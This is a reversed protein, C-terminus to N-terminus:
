FLLSLFGVEFREEWPIVTWQQLSWQFGVENLKDIRKKSLQSSQKNIFKKYEERQKGVWKSLKSHGATTPVNPHGNAKIFELLKNYQKNWAEDSRRKRNHNWIFGLSDLADVREKSMENLNFRQNIVWIGLGPYDIPVDCHGKEKRFEMLEELRKDWMTPEWEFGIADLKEMRSKSLPDSRKEMYMRRQDNVWGGLTEDTVPVDCDGNKEKYAKLLDLKREWHRDVEDEIGNVVLYDLIRSFAPHATPIAANGYQHQFNQLEALAEDFQFVPGDPLEEPPSAEPRDDADGIVEERIAEDNPEEEPQEAADRAPPQNVGEYATQAPPEAVVEEDQNPVEPEQKLVEPVQPAPIAPPQLAQPVQPPHHAQPPPSHHAQLPPPHHHQHQHQYAHPEPPAKIPEPPPYHYAPDPQHYQHHQHHYPDHQYAHPHHHPLPYDSPGTPPPYNSYNQYNMYGPYGPDNPHNPPPPYSAYGDLYGHHHHPPPPPPPGGNTSFDNSEM